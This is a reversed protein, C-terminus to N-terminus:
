TLQASTKYVDHITAGGLCVDGHYLLLSQPPTIPRLPQHFTVPIPHHNQTQVFLKTHKQPYTFKPTSKFRNQLHLPNLFSIHSPIFYH